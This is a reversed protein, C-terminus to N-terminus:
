DDTMGRELTHTPPPDLEQRPRRGDGPRTRRHHERRRTSEITVHYRYQNPQSGNEVTKSVVEDRSRGPLGNEYVCTTGSSCICQAARRPPFSAQPPQRDAASSVRPAFFAVRGCAEGFAQESFASLSKSPIRCTKPIRSSESVRHPLPREATTDFEVSPTGSRSRRRASSRDPGPSGDEPWSVRSPRGGFARRESSRGRSM